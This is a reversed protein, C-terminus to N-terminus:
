YCPTIAEAIVCKMTPADSASGAISDRVMRRTKFGHAMGTVAPKSATAGSRSVGAMASKLM